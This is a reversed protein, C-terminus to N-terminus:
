SIFKEDDSEMETQKPLTDENIITNADSRLKWHKCNYNFDVYRYTCFCHKPYCSKCRSCHGEKQSVFPKKSASFFVCHVCLKGTHTKKGDFYALPKEKVVGIDINTNYSIISNILRRPISRYDNSM